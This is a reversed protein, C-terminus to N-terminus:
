LKELSRKIKAELEEITGENSIILSARSKKLDLSMQSDIRKLAERKSLKNRKQLRELQTERSTYILWIEDFYIGWAEIAEYEEFLLPIDVFIVDEERYEDIQKKIAQFIFPHTISNLMELKEKDSFVLAGLRGRAIERDEDLIDEGFCELTKLYSPSGKEMSGRAIKDADILKYGANKIFNAATSKGSAIGGTLGIVMPKTHTM